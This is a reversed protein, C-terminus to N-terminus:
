PPVPVLMLDFDYYLNCIIRLLNFNEPNVQITDRFLMDFTGSFGSMPVDDFELHGGSMPM